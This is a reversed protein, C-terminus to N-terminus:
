CCVAKLSYIHFGKEGMVKQECVLVLYGMIELGPSLSEFFVPLLYMVSIRLVPLKLFSRAEELPCSEFPVNSSQAFKQKFHLISFLHLWIQVL